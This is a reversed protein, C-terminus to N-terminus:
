GLQKTFQNLDFYDRWASIKGEPTVDFAGMVPLEVPKESSHKKALFTFMIAFMLPGTIPMILAGMISRRDRISDAMEKDFVARLAGTM